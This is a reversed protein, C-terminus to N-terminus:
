LRFGSSRTELEAEYNKVLQECSLFDVRKSIQEFASFKLRSDFERKRVASSVIVMRSHFDRLDYFKLLSNKMDTGHEIEFLSNPMKRENFWIVDVTSSRKVLNEYSFPPIEQLTRLSGISEHVFIKNKDQNPSWCDFKRLKGIILLLAQYYTHGFEKSAESDKNAKTEGVIGRSELEAKKSVLGYLGPKIKFISNSLQVIRRISATPTKTKWECDKIKFVEAYLQGLTAAGGLREMTQLVAQQQNVGAILDNNTDRRM